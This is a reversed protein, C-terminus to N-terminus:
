TVTQLSESLKRQMSGQQPSGSLLGGTAKSFFAPMWIMGGPPM